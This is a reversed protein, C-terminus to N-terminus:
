TKSRKKKAKAKNTPIKKVPRRFSNKIETGRRAKACNDVDQRRLPVLPQPRDVRVNMEVYQRQLVVPQPRGVRVNRDDKSFCNKVLRQIEGFVKGENKNHDWLWGGGIASVSAVCIGTIVSM